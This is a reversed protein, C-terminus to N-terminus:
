SANDGDVERVLERWLEHGREIGRNHLKESEEEILTGLTAKEFEDLVGYIHQQLWTEDHGGNRIMDFTALADVEVIFREIHELLYDVTLTTETPM